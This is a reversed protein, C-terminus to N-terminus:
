SGSGHSIRISPTGQVISSNIAVIEKDIKNEQVAKALGDMNLSHRLLSKLEDKPIAAIVAKRTEDSLANIDLTEHFAQRRQPAKLGDWLGDSDYQVSEPQSVTIRTFDGFKDSEMSRVGRLLLQEILQQDCDKKEVLAAASRKAFDERAEAIGFLEAESIRKTKAEKNKNKPSM